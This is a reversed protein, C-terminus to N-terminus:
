ATAMPTRGIDNEAVEDAATVIARRLLSSRSGHGVSSDNRLM